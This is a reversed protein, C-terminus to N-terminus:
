WGNLTPRKLFISVWHRWLLCRGAISLSLQRSFCLRRGVGQLRGSSFSSLELILLSVPCGTGKPVVQWPLPKSRACETFKISSGHPRSSRHWRIPNALFVNVKCSELAKRPVTSWAKTAKSSHTPSLGKPFARQSSALIWFRSGRGKGMLGHVWTLWARSFSSPSSSFRVCRWLSPSCRGVITAELLMENIVVNIRFSITTEAIQSFRM